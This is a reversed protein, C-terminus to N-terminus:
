SDRNYIKLLNDLIKHIHNPETAMSPAKIGDNFSMNSEYIHIEDWLKEELFLGLTKSGGEVLLSQIGRLHLAAVMQQCWPIEKKITIAEVNSKCHDKLIIKVAKSDVGFIQHSDNLQNNPDLAVKLNSQGYWDRVSLAPNDQIITQYGVLISQVMARTKHAHQRAAWNSIWFPKSEKRLTPSPAIFGDKTQAFKLIIYPRNKLQQTLFIKHLDECEKKLVNQAITLNAKELMLKGRGSVKPNPDLCGIVVGKPKCSSIALACPPTKGYHACPELTVYFTANEIEKPNKVSAIANVEAHSGGFASTFGEGIIKDEKVIVCGVSPNPTASQTGRKALEIARRM